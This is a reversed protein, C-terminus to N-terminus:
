PTLSHDIDEVVKVREEIVDETNFFQQQGGRDADRRKRRQPRRDEVIGSDRIFEESIEASKDRLGRKDKGNEDPDPECDERKM